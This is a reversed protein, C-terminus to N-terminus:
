SAGPQPIQTSGVPVFGTGDYRWVERFRESPCCAPDGERPKDLTVTATM